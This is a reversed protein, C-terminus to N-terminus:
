EMSLCWFNSTRNDFSFNWYDFIQVTSQSQPLNKMWINIRFKRVMILVNWKNTQMTPILLEANKKYRTEYDNFFVVSFSFLTVIMTTSLFPIYTCLADRNSTSLVLSILNTWILPVVQLFCGFEYTIIFVFHIAFTALVNKWSLYVDFHFLFTEDKLIWELAILVVVCAKNWSKIKNWELHKLEIIVSHKYQLIVHMCSQCHFFLLMKGFLIYCAIAKSLLITTKLTGIWKVIEINWELM